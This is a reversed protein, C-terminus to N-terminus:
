CGQISEHTMEHVGNAGNPILRNIVACEQFPSKSVIIRLLNANRKKKM